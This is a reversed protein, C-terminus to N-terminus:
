DARQLTQLRERNQLMTNIGQIMNMCLCYLIVPFLKFLLKTLQIIPIGGKPAAKGNM